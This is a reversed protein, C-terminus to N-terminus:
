GAPLRGHPPEPFTPPFDLKPGEFVAKVKPALEGKAHMAQLDSNGGIYETGIWIQPMTIVGKFDGPVLTPIQRKRWSEKQVDINLFNEATVGLEALLAKAAKCHPCNTLAFITVHGM